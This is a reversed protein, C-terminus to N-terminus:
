RKTRKVTFLVQFSDISRLESNTSTPSHLFRYPKERVKLGFDGDSASRKIHNSYCALNLLLVLEDGIEGRAEM